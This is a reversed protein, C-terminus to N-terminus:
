EGAREARIVEMLSSKGAWIRQIEQWTQMSRTGLFPEFVKNGYPRWSAFNQLTEFFGLGILNTTEEDAKLLLNELLAFVRAVEGVNEKEYLDEVVFHVFEGMDNYSGAPEGGWHAIHDKWRAAFQPFADLLVAITMNVPPIGCAILFTVAEDKNVPKLGMDAFAGDPLSELDARTPKVLGALQQLAPGTFGLQLALIALDPMVEPKIGGLM